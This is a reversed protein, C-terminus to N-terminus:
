EDGGTRRSYMSRLVGLAWLETTESEEAQGIDALINFPLSCFLALRTPASGSFIALITSRARATTTLVMIIGHFLVSQSSDATTERINYM